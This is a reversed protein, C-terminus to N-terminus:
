WGWGGGWGGGWRGGWRGWGPRGWPGRWGWFEKKDANVSKEPVSAAEVTASARLAPQEATAAVANVVAISTAVALAAIKM